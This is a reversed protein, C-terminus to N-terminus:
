SEEKQPNSGHKEEISEKMRAYIESDNLKELKRFEQPQGNREQM